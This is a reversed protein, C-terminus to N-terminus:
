KLLIMKKQEINNGTKLQYYYTGSPLNYANFNIKHLGTQRHEDVLTAVKRGLMDFVDLKVHSPNNLQFEITTEPNFPNPYNQMLQLEQPYQIQKNNNGVDSSGGLIFALALIGLSGYFTLSTSDGYGSLIFFYLVGALIFLMALSFISELTPFVGILGFTIRSFLLLQGIYLAGGQANDISPQKNNTKAANFYVPADIEPNEDVTGIVNTLIYDNVVQISWITGQGTRTNVLQPTAINTLNFAEMFWGNATTNSGILALTDEVSICMPIGQTPITSITALNTKDNLNLIKVSNNNENVSSAIFATSHNSSVSLARAEGEVPLSALIEINEPDEINLIEFTSADADNYSLVYALSDQAYLGRVNDNEPLFLGTQTINNIDTTNLFMITDQRVALILGSIASLRTLGGYNWDSAIFTPIQSDQIQYFWLREDGAVILTDNVSTMYQVSKPSEFAEALTPQAPDSVDIKMFACSSNTLGLYVFPYEVQMIKPTPWAGKDFEYYGLISAQSANQVDAIFLTMSGVCTLYAKNNEIEVCSPSKYSTINDEKIFTPIFNLRNPNTKDSIDVIGLGIDPYEDYGLYATNQILDITAIKPSETKSVLEPNAPNSIDYIILHDETGVLLTSGTGKVSLADEVPITSEFQINEPDVINIITLVGDSAHFAYGDSFTVTQPFKSPLSFQQRIQPNLPDTIDITQLSSDSWQYFVFLTNNKIFMLNPEAPLEFNGKTEFPSKSVDVIALTTSQSIYALNEKVVACNPWGGIRSRSDLEPLEQAFVANFFVLITFLICQYIKFLKVM